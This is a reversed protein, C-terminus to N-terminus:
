PTLAPWLFDLSDALNRQSSAERALDRVHASTRKIPHPAETNSEPTARNTINALGQGVILGAGTLRHSHPGNGSRLRMADRAEGFAYKQPNVSWRTLLM